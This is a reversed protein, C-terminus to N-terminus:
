VEDFALKQFGAAQLRVTSVLCTLKILVFFTPFHWFQFIRIRCKSYNEFVTPWSELKFQAFYLCPNENQFEVVKALYIVPMTCYKGVM